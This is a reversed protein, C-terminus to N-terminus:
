DRKVNMEPGSNPIGLFVLIEQVFAANPVFFFLHQFAAKFLGINQIHGPYLLFTELGLPIIFPLPIKQAQVGRHKGACFGVQADQM